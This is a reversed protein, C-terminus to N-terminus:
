SGSCYNRWTHNAHTHNQQEYKKSDCEGKRVRRFGRRGENGDRLPRGSDEMRVVADGLGLWERGETV